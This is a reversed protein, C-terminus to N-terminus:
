SKSERLIERVAQRLSEEFQQQQMQLHEKLRRNLLELLVDLEKTNISPQEPTETTARRQAVRREKLRRDDTASLSGRPEQGAWCAEAPPEIIETLMPFDDDAVTKDALIEANRKGLLADIQGFIDKASETM